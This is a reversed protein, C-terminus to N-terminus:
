VEEGNQAISEVLAEKEDVLKVPPCNEEYFMSIFECANNWGSKMWRFPVLLIALPPLIYGFGKDVTHMFRSLVGIRFLIYFVFGALGNYFIVKGLFIVFDLSVSDTFLWYIFSCCWSLGNLITGAFTYFGYLLLSVLALYAVNMAWKIFVRSFNTWFIIRERWKRKRLEASKRAEEVKPMYEDFMVKVSIKDLDHFINSYSKWFNEFDGSYACIFELCKKKQSKQSKLNEVYEEITESKFKSLCKSLFDCFSNIPLLDLCACLGRILLIILKISLILPSLLAILNTLHFLPCYHTYLFMPLGTYGLHNIDPAKVNFAWHLIRYRWHNFSLKREGKISELISM